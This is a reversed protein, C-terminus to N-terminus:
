DKFDKLVKEVVTGSQILKFKGKEYIVDNFWESVIQNSELSFLAKRKPTFNRKYFDTVSERNYNDPIEGVILFGDTTYQWLVFKSPNILKLKPTIVMSIDFGNLSKDKKFQNHGIFLYGDVLRFDEHVHSVKGFNQLEYNNYIDLSVLEWNGTRAILNGQYIFSIGLEQATIPWLEEDFFVTETWTRNSNGPKLAVYYNGFPTFTHYEPNIIWSKKEIDFVGSGEHYLTMTGYSFDHTDAETKRLSLILKNDLLSLHNIIISETELDDTWQLLPMRKLKKNDLKFIRLENNARYGFSGDELERQQITSYKPQLLEGHNSNYVGYKKDKEVFYSVGGWYIDAGIEILNDYLESDFKREIINYFGTKGEIEVRYVGRNVVKVATIRGDFLEQFHNLKHNDIKVQEYISKMAYNYYSISSYTQVLFGKEWQVVNGPVERVFSGLKNYITSVQGGDEYLAKINNGLKSVTYFVYTPDGYYEIEGGYSLTKSKNLYSISADDRGLDLETDPNSGSLNAILFKGSPIDALCVLNGSILLILSDVKTSHINITSPSELIVQNNRFDYVGFSNQKTYRFWNPNSESIGSFTIDRLITQKSQNDWVSNEDKTSYLYYRDGDVPLLEIEKVGKEPIEKKIDKFDQSFVTFSFLLLTLTLLRNM